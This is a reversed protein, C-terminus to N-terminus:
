DENQIQNDIYKEIMALVESNDPSELYTFVKAQGQLKEILEGTESDKISFWAGAQEIIGYKIAVEVLDKLYDIGTLYNLTYQGTRRTPPCSKNKKM